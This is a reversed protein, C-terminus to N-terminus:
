SLAYANVTTQRVRNGAADVATARLSAFGPTGPHRVTAVRQDGTGSVVAPSWSKGGDYSVEVALSKLAAPAAGPAREYRVPIAFSGARPARNDADLVPRYRLVSLPLAAPKTGPVRASRFTWAVEVRRSLPSSAEPGRNLVCELQYEAVPAPLNTLPLVGPWQESALVQGNRRLTTSGSDTDTPLGYHGPQSDGIMPIQGEVADGLRAPAWDPRLSPGFVATNWLERPAPGPRYTIRPAQILVGPELEGDVIRGSDFTPSYTVGPAVLHRDTRTRLNGTLIYPAFSVPFAPTFGHSFLSRAEDPGQRSITRQVTAFDKDAFRLTPTAPIGGRVGATVFDAYPTPPQNPEGTGAKVFTTSAAFDLSPISETRPEVNVTGDFAVVGMSREHAPVALGVFLIGMAADKRAVAMRLPVGKRADFLVENSRTLTVRRAALTLPRGNDEIGALVIYAGAPLRKSSSGLFIGSYTEGTKENIAMVEAITKGGAGGLATIGLNYSEPEKYAGVATRVITNGDPSTAVLAGGYLGVPGVNPHVAVTATATKGAPVVLTAPSVTFMGARAPRRKDDTVTLALRLTVAAPGSNTYTVQKRAAPNGGSHPWPFYGLSLSGVSAHVPQRVARALDLRGTGQQYATLGVTPKASAMLAAKLQEARWGPHQGALIAAGGAVHPTAMSTGSLPV